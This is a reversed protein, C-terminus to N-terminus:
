SLGCLGAGNVTAAQGFSLSAIVPYPGLVAEDDAHWDVSDKGDRYLNALM